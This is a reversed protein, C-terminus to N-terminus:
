AWPPGPCSPPPYRGSRTTPTANAPRGAFHIQTAPGAETGTCPARGPAKAPPVPGDPLKPPLHPHHRIDCTKAPANVVELTVRARARPAPFDRGQGEPPRGDVGLATPQLLAARCRVPVPAAPLRRDQPFPRFQDRNGTGGGRHAVARGASRGRVLRGPVWSCSCPGPPRVATM